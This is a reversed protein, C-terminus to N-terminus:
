ARHNAEQKLREVEAELDAVQARLDEREHIAQFHLSVHQGRKLVALNEIHNDTKDGNLHHVVESSEIYRGLHKEVLLRHEMVCGQKTANPHDPAYVYVYGSKLKRRGGRWNAADKGGRGQPYRKRLGETIAERTDEGKTALGPKGAWYGVACAQAGLREAVQAQTRTALQEALWDRDALKQTEPKLPVGPRGKPKTPLKFRHLWRRVTEGHVGLVGGVSDLSATPDNVYLELLRERTVLNDQPGKRMATGEM